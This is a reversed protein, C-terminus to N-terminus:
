NANGKQGNQLVKSIVNKRNELKIYKSMHGDLLNHFDVIKFHSDYMKLDGDVYVSVYSSGSDFHVTICFDGFSIKWDLMGDSHTFNRELLGEYLVNDM